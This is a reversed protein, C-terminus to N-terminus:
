HGLYSIPSLAAGWTSCGSFVTAGHDEHKPPLCLASVHGQLLVQLLSPWRPRERSINGLSRHMTKLILVWELSPRFVGSVLCTRHTGRGWELTHCEPQPLLSGSHSFLGEPILPHCPHRCNGSSCAHFLFALKLQLWIWPSRQCLFLCQSPHQQDSMERSRECRGSCCGTNLLVRGGPAPHGASIPCFGFPGQLSGGKM